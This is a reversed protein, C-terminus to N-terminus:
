RVVVEPPEVAHPPTAGSVSDIRFALSPASETGRHRLHVESWDYPAIMNHWAITM